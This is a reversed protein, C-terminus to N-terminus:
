IEGEVGSLFQAAGIEFQEVKGQLVLAPEGSALTTHCLVIYSKGQFVVQRGIAFRQLKIHDALPEIKEM